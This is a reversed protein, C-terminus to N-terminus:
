VMVGLALHQGSAPTAPTTSPALLPSPPMHSCLPFSPHPTEGAHPASWSGATWPHHVVAGDALPFQDLQPHDRGTAQSPKWFDLTLPSTFHRETERALFHTHCGPEETDPAASHPRSLVWTGQVGAATAHSVGGGLSLVPGPLCTFLLSM